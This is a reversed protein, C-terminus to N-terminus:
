WTVSYLIAKSFTRCSAMGCSSDAAKMWSTMADIVQDPGRGPAAGGGRSRRRVSEATTLSSERGTNPLPLM